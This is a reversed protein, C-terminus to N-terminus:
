RVVTCRPRPHQLRISQQKIYHIGQAKTPSWSIATIGLYGGRRSGAPSFWPARNLDTAAMIGATSSAAPIQIYQDNYKDYVKLFNGDM